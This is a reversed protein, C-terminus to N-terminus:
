VGGRVKGEYVNTPQKTVINVAGGIANRGYLAGQPGKLVEIREVDFLDMKFQKQNNQPVGDVVIAIPSDANNVQTVGRVVVFTNGYTFSDDLTMNPTLNVFDQTSTIGADIIGQETFATVSAPVDQLRQERYQATVVVEELVDALTCHPAAVGLMLGIFPTCKIFEKM